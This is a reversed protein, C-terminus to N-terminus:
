LRVVGLLKLEWLISDMMEKIKIYALTNPEAGELSDEWRRLQAQLEFVREDSKIKAQTDAPITAVPEVTIPEPEPEPEQPPPEPANPIELKLLSRMFLPLPLTSAKLQNEFELGTEQDDLRIALSREGQKGTLWEVNSKPKKPKRTTKNIESMKERVELITLHDSQLQEIIPRFKEACLSKITNIDLSLLNHFEEPIYEFIKSYSAVLNSTWGFCKEVEKRELKAQQRKEVTDETKALEFRNQLQAAIDCVNLLASGLLQFSEELRQALGFASNDLNQLRPYQDVQAIVALTTM